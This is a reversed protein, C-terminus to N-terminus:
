RQWEVHAAALRGRLYEIEPAVYYAAWDDAPPNQLLNRAEDPFIDALRCAEEFSRDRRVAKALWALKGGLHYARVMEEHDEDEEAEREARKRAAEQERQKAEQERKHERERERKRVLDDTRARIFVPFM